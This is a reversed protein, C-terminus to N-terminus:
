ARVGIICIDDIQEINGTWTQLFTTLHEKQDESSKSAIEILLKKFNSSKLKKGKDGGFQDPYGDSFTYIMDGKEIAIEHTTFPNSHIYRGVPQKNAKTEILESNRVIWLPNNAGSYEITMNGNDQTKRSLSCLAIDMGDSVKTESKQFQEIVLERTKDLIKGPSRLGFERVSRNLANNCVVSVLAGPVGHGTCDAAAFIISEETEELWYFDGAVIDKPLYLIFADKLLRNVETNSPLIASQIRKAYSISDLIESNKEELLDKQREVEIKQKEILKGSKRKDFYMAIMFVVLLILAGGIWMLLTNRKKENQKELKESEIKQRLLSQENASIISDNKLQLQYTNKSQKKVMDIAYDRDDLSDYLFLYQKLYKYASDPENMEIYINALAECINREDSKSEIEISLHYGKLTYLLASDFDKKGLFKSGKSQYHYILLEKYDNELSIELAKQRYISEKEWDGITNYYEGLTQYNIALWYTNNSSINLDVGKFLHEEVNDFQKLEINIQALNSYEGALLSAGELRELITIANQHYEKSSELLDLRSYYIGINAYSHAISLSDNAEQNLKLSKFLYDLGAEYNINDCYASSINQYITSIRKNRQLQNSWEETYVIGKKYENIALDLQNSKKYWLGKYIIAILINNTDKISKAYEVYETLIKDSFPLKPYDYIIEVYNHYTDIIVTEDDLSKALSLSKNLHVVASDPVNSYAFAIQIHKEIKDATNNSSSLLRYLSDIETQACPIIRLLLFIAISIVKLM